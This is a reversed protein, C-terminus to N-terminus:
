AANSSESEVRGCTLDVLAGRLGSDALARVNERGYAVLVSPAGGNFKAREGSPWHYHLRGELFLLGDARDWVQRCFMATETRAFILAIGNGHDALKELWTGTENGYPPNLWVRGAWPQALGDTPLTFHRVATPWPKPEPAACPDLDFSGLANLIAPPTLWSDSRGVHSGPHHSGMSRSRTLTESM